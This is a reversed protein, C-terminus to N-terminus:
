RGDGEGGRVALAADDADVETAVRAGAVDGEEGRGEAGGAGVSELAGNVEGLRGLRGAIGLELRQERVLRIADPVHDVDRVGHPLLYDPTPQAKFQAQAAIHMRLHDRAPESIM